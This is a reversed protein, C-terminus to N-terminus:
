YKFFICFNIYTDYLKTYHISYSTIVANNKLEYIAREIAAPSNTFQGKYNVQDLSNLITARSSEDAVTLPVSLRVDQDFIIIAVRTMEDLGNIFEIVAQNTLFDPDNKKMSGSNDLM